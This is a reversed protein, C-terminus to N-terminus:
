GLVGQIVGGEREKQYNVLYKFFKCSYYKDETALSKQYTQRKVGGEVHEREAGSICGDTISLICHQLFNAHGGYVKPVAGCKLSTVSLQPHFNM